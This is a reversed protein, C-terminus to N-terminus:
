ENNLYSSSYNIELDVWSAFYQVIDDTFKTKFNSSLLFLLQPVKISFTFNTM